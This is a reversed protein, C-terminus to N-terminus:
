QTLRRNLVKEMIGISLAESEKQLHQRAQQIQNEVDRAAKQKLEQIEKRIDAAIESAKQSGADEMENKLALAEARAAAEKAKLQATLSTMETEADRVEQKLRDMYADREGMVKKLPRFMIRNILFLFILFSLMQVILTENISILAINSIIEM